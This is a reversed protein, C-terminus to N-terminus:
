PNATLIREANRPDTWDEPNRPQVHAARMAARYEVGEARSAAATPNGGHCDTCGLRVQPSEHMPEVDKHCNLCGASKADAEEQTQRLLPPANDDEFAYAAPLLLLNATLCLTAAYNAIRLGLTM